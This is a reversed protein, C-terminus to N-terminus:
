RVCVNLNDLGMSETPIELELLDGPFFVQTTSIKCGALGTFETVQDATVQYGASDKNRDFKITKTVHNASGAKTCDLHVRM